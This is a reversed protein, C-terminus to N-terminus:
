AGEEDFKVHVARAGKLFQMMASQKQKFEEQSALKM